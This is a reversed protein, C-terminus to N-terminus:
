FTELSSELDQIQIRPLLVRVGLYKVPEDLSKEACQFYPHSVQPM